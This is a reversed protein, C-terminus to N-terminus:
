TGMRRVIQGDGAEKENIKNKEFLSLNKCCTTFFRGDLIWHYSKFGRSRLHLDRGMVM